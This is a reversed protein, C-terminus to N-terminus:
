NDLVVLSPYPRQGQQERSHWRLLDHIAQDTGDDRRKAFYCCAAMRPPLYDWQCGTRSQCLIANVIQQM